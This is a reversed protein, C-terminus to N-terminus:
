GYKCPHVHAHYNQAAKGAYKEKLFLHRRAVIHANPKRKYGYNEDSKRLQILLM